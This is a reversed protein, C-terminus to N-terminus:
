RCAKRTSFRWKTRHGLLWGAYSPSPERWPNWDHINCTPERRSRYRKSPEITPHAVNVAPAVPASMAPAAQEYARLQHACSVCLGVHAVVLERETQDLEDEVWADMQEYTLHESSADRVSSLLSVAATP